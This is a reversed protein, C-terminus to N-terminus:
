VLLSKFDADSWLSVLDEDTSAIKKLKPDIQFARALNKLVESRDVGLLAQYCAVNYFAGGISPDLRVAETAQALAQQLLAKDGPKTSKQAFRKLITGKLMHAKANSSDSAIALDTMENAKELDGDEFAQDAADAYGWASDVQSALSLDTLAKQLYLRAWLYGILFGAASFFIVIGLALAESSQACTATDCDRLGNAIYTTLGRVRVPIKNLEVLGVGVIIKTLWDSVEVLNSNPSVGANNRGATRSAGGQSGGTPQKSSSDGSDGPTRPIGFVFGLVFGALLFAGASVIGVALISLFSRSPLFRCSYVLIFVLGILTAVQLRRLMKYKDLYESTWKDRM